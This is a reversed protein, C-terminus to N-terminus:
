RVPPSTASLESSAFAAGRDPLTDRRTHYETQLDDPPRLSHNSGTPSVILQSILPGSSLECRLVKPPPLDDGCWCADAIARAPGRGDLARM